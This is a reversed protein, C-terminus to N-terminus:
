WRGQRRARNVQPSMWVKIRFWDAAVLAVFAALGSAFLCGLGTVFGVAAQNWGGINNLAVQPFAAVVLIWVVVVAIACNAVRALGSALYLCFHVRGRQRYPDRRWLWWGTSFDEWGFKACLIPVSLVPQATLEFLLIAAGIFLVWLIINPWHRARDPKPTTNEM